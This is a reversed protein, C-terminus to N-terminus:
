SNPFAGFMVVFCGTVIHFSSDWSHPVHTWDYMNHKLIKKHKISHIM